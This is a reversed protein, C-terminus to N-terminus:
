FRKKMDVRVAITTDASLGENSANEGPPSRSSAVFGPSDSGRGAFHRGSGEVFHRRTLMPLFRIERDFELLM